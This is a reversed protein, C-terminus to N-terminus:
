EENKVKIVIKKVLTSKDGVNIGQRHPGNSFAIFFVGPRALHNWQGKPDKENYTENDKASDYPTRVTLGERGRLGLSEEGTAVFHIDSYEGHTEYSKDADSVTQYETVKVFVNKGDLEYNDPKLAEFGGKAMFAFAKDWRDRNKHYREYFEKKNITSDPVLSAGALWEKKEYWANVEEDSVGSTTDAQQETEGTQQEAIKGGQQCSVGTFVLIVLLLM